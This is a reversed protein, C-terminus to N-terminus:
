RGRTYSGGHHFGICLDAAARGSNGRKEPGIGGALRALFPM